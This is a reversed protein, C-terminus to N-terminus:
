DKEKMETEMVAIRENTEMIRQEVAKDVAVTFSSSSARSSSCFGVGKSGIGYM